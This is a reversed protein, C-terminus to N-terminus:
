VELIPIPSMPLLGFLMILISKVDLSISRSLQLLHYCNCFMNYIDQSTWFSICDKIDSSAYKSDKLKDLDILVQIVIYFLSDLNEVTDLISALYNFNRSAVGLRIQSELNSEQYGFLKAIQIDSLNYFKREDICDMARCINRAQGYDSSSSIAIKIFRDSLEPFEQHLYKELFKPSVSDISVTYESLYKNLKSNYKNDYICVLTGVINLKSIKSSIKDNLSHIFDEDYRVVYLTPQLPLIHRKKMINFVDSVCSVEVQRDDYFSKLQSLYKCKIGYETGVMIYFKAPHNNLIETGVDQISRM